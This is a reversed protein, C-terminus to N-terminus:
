DSFCKIQGYSLMELDFGILGDMLPAGKLKYIIEYSPTEQKVVWAVKPGEINRIKSGM